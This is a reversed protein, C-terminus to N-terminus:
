ITESSREKSAAATDAVGAREFWAIALPSMDQLFGRWKEPKLRSKSAIFALWPGGGIIHLKERADASILM